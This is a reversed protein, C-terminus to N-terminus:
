NGILLEEVGFADAVEICSVDDIMFVRDNINEKQTDNIRDLHTLAWVLEMTWLTGSKPFTTVVIDDTRFKFNYIKEAVRKYRGILM